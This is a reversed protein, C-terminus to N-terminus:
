RGRHHFHRQLQKFVLQVASFPRAMGDSAAGPMARALGEDRISDQQRKCNGRYNGNDSYSGNGTRNEECEFV